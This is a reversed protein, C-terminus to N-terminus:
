LCTDVTNGSLLNDTLTNGATPGKIGCGNTVIKNDRLENGVAAATGVVVFEVGVANSSITNDELVNGTALVNLRIGAASSGVIVNDELINDVGGVAAIGIRNSTFTNDEIVNLRADSRLMIARVISGRFASDKVSNGISGAQFDIGDRNDVLEAENIVVGTSTNVQVGAAFGRITGGVISVGTRGVVLVGVGSGSGSITHGNLAIEIGDAGVVLGNGSCVLDHDLAVSSIVTAGCLDNGATGPAASLLFALAVGTLIKSGM